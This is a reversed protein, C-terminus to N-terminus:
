TLDGDRGDHQVSLLPDAQQSILSRARARRGEVYERLRRVADDQDRGSAHHDLFASGTIAVNVSARWEGPATQRVTIPEGTNLTLTM